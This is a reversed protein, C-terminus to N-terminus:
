APRKRCEAGARPQHPLRPPPPPPRPLRVATGPEAQARLAPPPTLPASVPLLPFPLRRRKWPRVRGAVGPGLLLVTLLRHRRTKVSVCGRIGRRGAGGAAGGCPMSPSLPRHGCGGLRLVPARRAPRPRSQPAPSTPARLPGSQRVPTEGGSGAFRALSRGRRPPDHSLPIEAVM